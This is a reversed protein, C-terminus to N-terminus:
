PRNKLALPLYIAFEYYEDAGIDYGGGAPRGQGDIDVDIGANVGLDIAASGSGIHYDGNDPDVFAPDGLVNTSSTVNGSDIDWDQTNAWAGAGWLTAEMTLTSSIGYVYIGTEHGVLITNHLAM